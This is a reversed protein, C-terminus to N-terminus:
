LPPIYYLNSVAIISIAVLWISIPILFFWGDQRRYIYTMAIGAPIQFPIDYFVRTQVSWNGLFLPIIGISLFTILFITSVKNLRSRLLWYLSLGYIISNAFLSGYYNQTTDILSSWRTAFQESGLKLESDLPPFIEFGIGSNAGTVVMRAVDILASSSLIILLLFVNKREYYKFKLLVLLFVGMVLTLITWTYIHTFLLTVLLM